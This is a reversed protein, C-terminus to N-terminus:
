WFWGISRFIIQLRKREAIDTVPIDRINYPPAKIFIDPCADILDSLLRGQASDGTVGYAAHVEAKTM